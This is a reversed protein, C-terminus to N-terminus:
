SAKVDFYFSDSPEAGGRVPYRKFADRELWVALRDNEVREVEIRHLELEDASEQSAHVISSFITHGRIAELIRINALSVVPKEYGWGRRM